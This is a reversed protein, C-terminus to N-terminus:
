ERRGSKLLSRDDITIRKGSGSDSFSPATRKLMVRAPWFQGNFSKTQAASIASRAYLRINVAISLATGDVTYTLDAASSRDRSVRVILLSGFRRPPM